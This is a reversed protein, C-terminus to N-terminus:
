MSIALPPCARACLGCAVCREKDANEMILVPRGRFEAGLEPKEEPYNITVTPKFMQRFTYAMGKFIEPLYFKGGGTLEREKKSGKSIGINSAM